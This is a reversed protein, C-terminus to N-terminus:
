CTGPPSRAARRAAAAQRWESAAQLHRAWISLICAGVHQFLSEPHTGLSESLVMHMSAVRMRM